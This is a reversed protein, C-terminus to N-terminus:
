TILPFELNYETNWWHKLDTTDYAQIHFLLTLHLAKAYLIFSPKNDQAHLHKKMLQEKKIDWTLFRKTLALSILPYLHNIWDITKCKLATEDVEAMDYSQHSGFIYHTKQDRSVCSFSRWSKWAAKRGCILATHRWNQFWERKRWNFILMQECCQGHSAPSIVCYDNKALM